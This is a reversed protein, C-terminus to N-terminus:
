IQQIKHVNVWLYIPKATNALIVNPDTSMKYLTSYFPKLAEYYKKKWDPNKDKHGQEKVRQEFEDSFWYFVDDHVAQRLFSSYKLDSSLKRAYILASDPNKDYHNFFGTRYAVADPYLLQASVYLPTLTTLLLVLTALISKKLFSLRLNM